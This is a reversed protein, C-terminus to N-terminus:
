YAYGHDGNFTCVGIMSEEDWYIENFADNNNCRAQSQVNEHACIICIFESPCYDEC